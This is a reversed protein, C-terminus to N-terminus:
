LFRRHFTCKKCLAESLRNHAFGDRMKQARESSLIAALPQNQVNGLAIEGESDLCCPTVTGDALVAFQEVLGYCRGADSPDSNGALSGPWDFVSDSNWYVRGALRQSKRNLFEYDNQGFLASISQILPLNAASVTQYEALNWLRLNIYLEPRADALTKIRGALELLAPQEREWDFSHLSFNIQTIAPHRWADPFVAGNTTIKVPLMLERCYDLFDTLDRHLSPEGLVHLYVEGALEKIQRAALRFLDMSMWTAPRRTGPCFSCCKNCVNTIELYARKVKHM